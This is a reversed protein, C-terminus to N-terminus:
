HALKAVLDEYEKPTLLSDFDAPNTMEIEVIWGKGFPDQNVIAPDGEISENRRVVKGGVAAYIDSVTKVSEVVCLTKDRELKAGIQPVDVFVIDGLQKVAYDTIGMIVKKGEVKAWEHNKTFKYNTPLMKDGKTCTNSFPLAFV